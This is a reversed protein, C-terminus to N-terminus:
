SRGGDMNKYEHYDKKVEEVIDDTFLRVVFYAIIAFAGWVIVVPAIFLYILGLVIRLPIPGSTLRDGMYDVFEEVKDM